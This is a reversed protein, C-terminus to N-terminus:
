SSPSDLGTTVIKQLFDAMGEANCEDLADVVIIITDYISQCHSIIELFINWLPEQEHFDEEFCHRQANWRKRLIKKTQEQQGLLRFILGKVIAEVTNLESNANQCFFYTVVTKQMRHQELEEILGISMMTKGRGAGGKIWLLSVDGEYRWRRYHEDSLVWRFSDRSLGGKTRKLRNKVEFPNSCRLAKLCERDIEDDSPLGNNNSVNIVQTAEPGALNHGINVHSSM